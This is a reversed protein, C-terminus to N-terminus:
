IQRRFFQQVGRIEIELQRNLQRLQALAIDIEQQISDRMPMETRPELSDAKIQEYLARTLKSPAVDLEERLATTCREYQRLAQTRDNALYFLRMLQRHTREHARDYRLITIGYVAGQEYLGQAECYGMLKDLLTLYMFQFREREYFCWDAYWSDLLDGRYLEIAAKMGDAQESTLDSPSVDRVMTFTREFIQVDLWLDYAPNVQVWSPDILFLPEAADDNLLELASQLQWLVKRLSSKARDGPQEPWFLEALAERSRPHERNLLLYYFLGQVSSGELQDVAIPGLCVEPKGLLSIRLKTM